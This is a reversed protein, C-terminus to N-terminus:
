FFDRGGCYGVGVRAEVGAEVEARRVSATIVAFTTGTGDSNKLELSAGIHRALLRSIALGLGRGGGWARVGPVFLRERVAVPLGPGEDSVEFALSGDVRFCRLKVASGEESADIANQLLNMLILILINAERGSVPEEGSLSSLFRVGATRAVPGAKEALLTGMEGVTLDYAASRGDDRLIETIETILSRMRRAARSAERWEEEGAAGDALANLHGDLGALPNKLGHILHATLAGVASTKALLILEQNAELLKASRELLAAQTRRLRRFGVTAAAGFLAAGVGFAMGGQMWLNRDLVAFEEAIERGDMVFVAVGDMEGSERGFVPVAVELVPDGTSAMGPFGFQGGLDAAEWFRSVPELRWLRDWDESALAVEPLGIPLSGVYQESGDFIRVGLVGRLQSTRLVTGLLDEGEALAFDAEGFSGEHLMSAVATMIEGDRAIVQERIEARLRLSILGIVVGFIVLTGALLAAFIRWTIQKKVPREM